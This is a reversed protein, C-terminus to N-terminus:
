VQPVGLASPDAHDGSTGFDGRKFYLCVETGIRDKEKFEVDEAQIDFKLEIHDLQVGMPAEIYGVPLDAEVIEPQIVIKAEVLQGGVDFVELSAAQRLWNLTNGGFRSGEPSLGLHFTLRNLVQAVYAAGNLYRTPDDHFTICWKEDRDIDYGGRWFRKEFNIQTNEHILPWVLDKLTFNRPDDQPLGSQPLDLRESVTNKTM